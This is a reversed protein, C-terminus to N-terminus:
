REGNKEEMSNCCNSAACIYDHQLNSNNCVASDCADDVYAGIGM